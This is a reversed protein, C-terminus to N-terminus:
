SSNISEQIEEDLINNRANVKKHYLIFLTNSLISLERSSAKSSFTSRGRIIDINSPLKAM